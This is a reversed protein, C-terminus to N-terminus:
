KLDLNSDNEGELRICEARNSLTIQLPMCPGTFLKSDMMAQHTNLRYKEQAEIFIFM